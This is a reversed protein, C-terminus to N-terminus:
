VKPLRHNGRWDTPAIRRSENDHGYGEEDKLYKLAVDMPNPRGNPPITIQEMEFPQAGRSEEKTESWRGIMHFLHEGDQSHVDIHGAVNTANVAQLPNLPDNAFLVQTFCPEGLIQNTALNRLPAQVNKTGLVVINPRANKIDQLEDEKTNAQRAIDQYVRYPALLIGFVITGIFIALPIVWLLTNVIGEWIPPIINAITLLIVTIIGTATDAKGLKDGFAHKCCRQCFERKTIKIAM